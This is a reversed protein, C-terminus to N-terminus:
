PLVRQVALRVRADQGETVRLSLSPFGLQQIGAGDGVRAVVHQADAQREIVVRFVDVAEAAEGLLAEAAGPFGSASWGRRRMASGATPRPEPPSIPASCTRRTSIPTLGGIWAGAPARM